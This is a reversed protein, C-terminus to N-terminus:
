TRSELRTGAKSSRPKGAPTKVLCEPTKLSGKRPLIDLAKARAVPTKRSMEVRDEGEPTVTVSQPTTLQSPTSLAEDIQNSSPALGTMEWRMIQIGADTLM